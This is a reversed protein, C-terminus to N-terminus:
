IGPTAAVARRKGNHGRNKAAISMRARTEPTLTRGTLKVSITSKAKETHHFGVTGKHGLLAKARKAVAEPTQKKGLKALSMKRRTEESPVKGKQSESMKRKTEESHRTGRHAQATKEISEVTRKKGRHTLSQKRKAEETHRYGLTGDGGCTLNYGSPSKTDLLSIYFIEVFDMEEKTECQHLAQLSFAHEGYKRLARHFRYTTGSKSESLHERWRQGLSDVTQGVYQKGNIKNTVLYVIMHKGRTLRALRHVLVAGSQSLNM